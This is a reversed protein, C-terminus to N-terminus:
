LRVQKKSESVKSANLWQALKAEDKILHRESDFQHTAGYLRKNNSNKRSLLVRIGHPPSDFKRRFLADFQETLISTIINKKVGVASSGRRAMDRTKDNVSMWLELDCGVEFAMLDIKGKNMTFLYLFNFLYEALQLSPIESNWQSKLGEFTTISRGDNFKFPSEQLYKVVFCQLKSKCHEIIIKRVEVLFEKMDAIDSVAENSQINPVLAMAHRTVREDKFEKSIPIFSRSLALYGSPRGVIDEPIGKNRRMVDETIHKIQEVRLPDLAKGSSSTRGSDDSQKECLKNFARLAGEGKLLIRLRHDEYSIDNVIKPQSHQDGHALAGRPVGASPIVPDSTFPTQDDTAMTDFIITKSAHERKTKNYQRCVYLYFHHDRTSATNRERTGRAHLSFCM